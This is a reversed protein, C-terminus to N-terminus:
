GTLKGVEVNPITYYLVTRLLFRDRATSVCLASLYAGARACFIPTKFWKRGDVCARTHISGLRDGCWAGMSINATQMRIQGGGWSGLFAWRWWRMEVYRIYMGADHTYDEAGVRGGGERGREGL